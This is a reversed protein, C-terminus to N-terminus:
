LLTIFCKDLKMNRDYVQDRFYLYLNCQELITPTPSTFWDLQKPMRNRTTELHLNKKATHVFSKM